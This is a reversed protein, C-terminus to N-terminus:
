ASNLLFFFDFELSTYPPLLLLKFKSDQVSAKLVSCKQSLEYLIFM